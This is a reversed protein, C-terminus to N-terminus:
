FLIRLGLSVHNALFNSQSERSHIRIYQRRLYFHVPKLAALLIETNWALREMGNLMFFDPTYEFGGGIYFSSDLGLRFYLSGALALSLATRDNEIDTLYFMAGWTFRHSPDERPIGEDAGPRRRYNQHHFGYGVESHIDGRIRASADFRAYGEPIERYDRWSFYFSQVDSDSYDFEIEGAAAEVAAFLCLSCLSVAALRQHSFTQRPTLWAM